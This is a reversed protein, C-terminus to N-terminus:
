TLTKYVIFRTVYWISIGDLDVSRAAGMQLLIEYTQLINKSLIRQTLRDLKEFDQPIYESSNGRRFPNDQDTELALMMSHGGVVDLATLGEKEAINIDLSFGHTTAHDRIKNIAIHNACGAAMM